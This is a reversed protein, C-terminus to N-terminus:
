PKGVTADQVFEMKTTFHEHRAYFTGRIEESYNSRSNVDEAMFGFEDFIKRVGPGLWFMFIGVQVEAGKLSFRSAVAYWDFQRVWIKCAKVMDEQGMVLHKAQNLHNAKREAEKLDKAQM